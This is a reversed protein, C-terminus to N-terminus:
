DDEFKGHQLGLYVVIATINDGSGMKSAVKVLAESAEAANGNQRRLVECAYDGPM